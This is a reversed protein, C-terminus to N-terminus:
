YPPWKVYYMNWFCSLKPLNLTKFFHWFIQDIYINRFLFMKKVWFHRYTLGPSDWFMFLKALFHQNIHLKWFTIIKLTSITFLFSLLGTSARALNRSTGTALSKGVAMVIGTSYTAWAMSFLATLAVSVAISVNSFLSMWTIDPFLPCQGLLQIPFLFQM